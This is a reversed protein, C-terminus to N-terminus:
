GTRAARLAELRGYPDRLWREAAARTAASAGRQKAESDPAFTMGPVKADYHTAEIMAARDAEGCAVGFHPLIATFLAQPLERYNVL